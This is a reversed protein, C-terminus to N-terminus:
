WSVVNSDIRGPLAELVLQAMGRELTSRSSLLDGLDHGSVFMGSTPNPQDPYCLETKVFGITFKVTDRSLTNEPPLDVLIGTLYEIARGALGMRVCLRAAEARLCNNMIDLIRRESSPFATAQVVDNAYEESLQLALEPFDRVLLSLKHIFAETKGLDRYRDVERLMNGLSFLKADPNEMASIARDYIYQVAPSDVGMRLEDEMVPVAEMVRLRRSVHAAAFRVEEGRDDRLLCLFEKMPVGLIIRLDEETSRWADEICPAKALACRIVRRLSPKVKAPYPGNAPRKQNNAM